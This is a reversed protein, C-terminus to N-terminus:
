RIVFELANMLIMCSRKGYLKNNHIKVSIHVLKWPANIRSLLYRELSAIADFLLAADRFSVVFSEVNNPLM